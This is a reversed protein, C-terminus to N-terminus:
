SCGLLTNIQKGKLVEPTIQNLLLLLDNTFMSKLIKIDEPKPEKGLQRVVQKYSICLRRFTMRPSGLKFDRLRDKVGAATFEKQKPQEKIVEDLVEIEGFCSFEKM